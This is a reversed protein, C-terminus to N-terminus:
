GSTQGAAQLVTGQWCRQLVRLGRPARPPVQMNGSNIPYPPNFISAAPLTINPNRTMNRGANPGMDCNLMCVFDNRPYTGGAGTCVEPNSVPCLRCCLSGRRPHSQVVVPLKRHRAGSPSLARCDLQHLMHSLCACHRAGPDSCVDGTCYNSVENMDLWLGDMPLDKFM